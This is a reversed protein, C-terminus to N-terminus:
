LILRGAPIPSSNLVELKNIQKLTFINKNTLNEAYNWKIIRYPMARIHRMTTLKTVFAYNCLSVNANHTASCKKVMPQKPRQERSWPWAVDCLKKLNKEGRLQKSALQSNNCRQACFPHIPLQAPSPRHSKIMGVLLGFCYGSLGMFSLSTCHTTSIGLPVLKVTLKLWM